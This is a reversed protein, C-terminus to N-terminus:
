PVIFSLLSVNNPDHRLLISDDASINNNFYKMGVLDFRFINQGSSVDHSVTSKENLSVNLGNEIYYDRVRNYLTEKNGSLRLGYRKLITRLLPITVKKSPPLIGESGPAVSDCQHISGAQPADRATMPNSGEAGPVADRDSVDREPSVGPSIHDSRNTNADPTVDHHVNTADM